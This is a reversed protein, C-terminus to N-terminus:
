KKEDSLIFEIGEELNVESRWGLKKLEINNAKSEMIENERHPIAGFKLKTKSQSKRHIMEVFDRITATEGTGLEYEKFWPSDDQKLLLLYASVVDNIHIFDRKQDGPTLHLETVNNLCSRLIYSSFKNENDFSGYLHELKVNIFQIKEEFSFERGWDLFHKKTLSYAALHKYGNNGKHIFSDTNIFRKTQYAIATEMLKLPYSINADVLQTASEGNRDYKTATHIIIDIPGCDKFPQELSCRDINFSTVKSLVNSIRWTNSFSRKLIIVEYGEQIFAKTLHSGLFGTAGTILVKM